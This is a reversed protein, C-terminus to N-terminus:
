ISIQQFAGQPKSINQVAGDLPKIDQVLDPHRKELAEIHENIMRLAARDASREGRSYENFTEHLRIQAGNRLNVALEYALRIRTNEDKAYDPLFNDGFRKGNVGGERLLTVLDAGAQLNGRDAAYELLTIGARIKDTDGRSRWILDVGCDKIGQANDAQARKYSARTDGRRHLFDKQADLIDKIGYEDRAAVQRDWIEGLVRGAKLDVRSSVDLEQGKLVSIVPLAQRSYDEPPVASIQPIDKAERAEEQPGGTIASLTDAPLPVPTVKLDQLEMGKLKERLDIAAAPAKGAEPNDSLEDPKDDDSEWELGDRIAPPLRAIFQERISSWDKTSMDLGMTQGMSLLYKERQQLGLAGIDDKVAQDHQAAEVIEMDQIIGPVRDATLLKQVVGQRLLSWNNSDADLGMAFVLSRMYEQDQPNGGKELATMTDLILPLSRPTVLRDVINDQVVQLEEQPIAPIKEPRPLLTSGLLEEATLRPDRQYDPLGFHTVLYGAELGDGVWGSRGEIRGNIATSGPTALPGQLVQEEQFWPFHDFAQEQFLAFPPKRILTEIQVIMEAQTRPTSLTLTSAPQVIPAAEQESPIIEPIVAAEAIIEPVPIQAAEFRPPQDQITEVPGTEVPAAEGTLPVSQLHLDLTKKRVAPAVLDRLQLFERELRQYRGEDDRFPLPKYGYSALATGFQQIFGEVVRLDTIPRNAVQPEHLQNQGLFHNLSERLDDDDQLPELNETGKLLHALLSVVDRGNLTALDIRSLEELDLQHGEHLAM